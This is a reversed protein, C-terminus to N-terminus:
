YSIRPALRTGEEDGRERIWNQIVIPRIDEDHGSSKVSNDFHDLHDWIDQEAPALQAPLLGHIEDWLEEFIDHNHHLWLSNELIIAKSEIRKYLEWEWRDEKESLIDGVGTHKERVMQNFARGFESSESIDFSHITVEAHEKFAKEYLLCLQYISPVNPLKDVRYKEVEARVTSTLGTRADPSMTVTGIKLLRKNPIIVYVGNLGTPRDNSLHRKWKFHNPVSLVEQDRITQYGWVQRFSQRNKEHDRQSQDESPTLVMVWDSAKLVMEYSEVRVAITYTKPTLKDGSTTRVANSAVPNLTFKSEGNIKPKKKWQKRKASGTPLAIASVIMSLIIVHVVLSLWTFLRFLPM